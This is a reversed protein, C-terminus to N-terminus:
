GPNVDNQELLPVLQDIAYPISLVTNFSVAAGIPPDYYTLFVSRGERGVKSRQYVTDSEVRQRVSPDAVTWVMRDAEDLLDLRESSIEAANNNAALQTIRDSAKFGLDTMFETKADHSAFLAYNGPTFSDAVMITQQAYEPHKKRVADFRADVGDILQRAQDARGLAQGIRETLLRWPAAYDQFGPPQAVTPAIKSLQEYQERTMGSYQAIILDPKLTAIKEIQYEDREGVIEPKVDGWLPQTWPWNGYPREGFWDVVGVPKIGLALVSEQDNLGLVVVRLPDAPLESFGYKHEMRVGSTGQNGATPSGCAALLVALLFGLFALSKARCRAIPTSM